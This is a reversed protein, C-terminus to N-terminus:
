GQSAAGCRSDGGATAVYKEMLSLLRRQDATTWGAMLPCCPPCSSPIANRPAAPHPSFTNSTQPPTIDPPRHDSRMWEVTVSFFDALQNLRIEDPTRAGREWPSWQQPSVGFAEACRKEGGRGPYKVLRCQKINRAIIERLDSPTRGM